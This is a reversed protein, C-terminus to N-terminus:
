VESLDGIGGVAHDVTSVGPYISEQDTSTHDLDDRHRTPATCHARDLLM